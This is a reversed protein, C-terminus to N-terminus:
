GNGANLLGQIRFPPTAGDGYINDPPGGGVACEAPNLKVKQTNKLMVHHVSVPGTGPVPTGIM